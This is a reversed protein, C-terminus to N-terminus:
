SELISLSWGGLFSFSQSHPSGPVPFLISTFCSGLNGIKVAACEGREGISHQQHDANEGSNEAQYASARGM